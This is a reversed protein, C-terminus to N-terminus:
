ERPRYLPLLAGLSDNEAEDLVSHQVCAPVIEGREPHAMGYACAQLREQTALLKPDTARVGRQLLDWAPAVDAADMFGHMVYTTPQLDGGLARFGLRRVLRLAWSVVPPVDGPNMLMARGVRAAAILPPPFLLNGPLRSLFVDRARLDRPDTDDLLPVYRDGGWLGYTVRNCRFDGVQLAKYPL